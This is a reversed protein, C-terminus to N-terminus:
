ENCQTKLLTDHGFCSEILIDCEEITSGITVDSENYVNQFIFLFPNLDLDHFFNHFLVKMRKKEKTLKM